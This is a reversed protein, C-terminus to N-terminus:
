DQQPPPSAMATTGSSQLDRNQLDREWSAINQHDNDLHSVLADYVEQHTRPTPNGAADIEFYISRNAYAPNSNDGSYYDAVSAAPQDATAPNHARNYLGNNGSFYYAYQAQITEQGSSRLYIATMMPAVIPNTRWDVESIDIDYGVSALTDQVLDGYEETMYEYTSDIFQGYNQALRTASSADHTEYVGYNSEQGILAALDTLPIGIERSAILMGIALEQGANESLAAFTISQDASPSSFGELFERQNATRELYTEYRSRAESGEPILTELRNDADYQILMLMASASLNEAVDPNNELYQLLGAITQPDASGDVTIRQDTGQHHLCNLSSQIMLIDNDMLANGTLLEALVDQAYEPGDERSLRIGHVTMPGMVGDNYYRHSEDVYYGMESLAEQQERVSGRIEARNAQHSAYYPHDHAPALTQGGRAPFARSSHTLFWALAVDQDNSFDLPPIDQAAILAVTNFEDRSRELAM